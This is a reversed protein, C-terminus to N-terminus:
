KKNGDLRANTPASPTVDSAALGTEAHGGEEACHASNGGRIEIRPPIFTAIVTFTEGSKKRKLIGYTLLLMTM